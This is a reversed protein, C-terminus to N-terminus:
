NHKSIEADIAESLETDSMEDYTSDDAAEETIVSYSGGIKLNSDEISSRSIEQQVMRGDPTIRIFRNDRDLALYGRGDLREAATLADAPTLQAASALEYVYSGENANAAQLIKAENRTLLNDSM